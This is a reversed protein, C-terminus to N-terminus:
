KADVVKGAALTTVHDAITDLWGDTHTVIVNITNQSAREQILSTLTRSAKEDLGVNPEDFFLVDPEHLVARALISRQREGKSYTSMPRDAIRDIEFRALVRQVRENATNLGYLEAILLLNERVSLSPYMWSQHSVHGIKARFPHGIEVLEDNFRISGATPRTILSAIGLMTTKGSGNGGRVLHVEGANFVLSVGGLAVTAEYTKVINDLEIRRITTM